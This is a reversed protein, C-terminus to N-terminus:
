EEFNDTFPNLSDDYSDVSLGNVSRDGIKKDRKNELNDDEANVKRNTNDDTEEMPETEEFPNVTINLKPKEEDIAKTSPELKDNVASTNNYSTISVDASKDNDNSSTSSTISLTASKKATLYSPRSTPPDNPERIVLEVESKDDQHQNLHHRQDERVQELSDNSM